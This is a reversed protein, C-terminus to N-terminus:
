AFAIIDVVYHALAVPWLAGSRRFMLMLLCGNM